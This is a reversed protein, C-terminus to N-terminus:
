LLGLKRAEEIVKNTFFNGCKGCALTPRHKYVVDEWEPEHDTPHYRMGGANRLIGDVQECSVTIRPEHDKQPVLLTDHKFTNIINEICHHIRKEHEKCENKM